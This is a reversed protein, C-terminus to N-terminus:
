CISFNLKLAALRISRQSDSWGSHNPNGGFGFSVTAEVFHCKIKGDIM